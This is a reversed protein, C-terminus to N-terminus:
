KNKKENKPMPEGLVEKLAAWCQTQFNQNTAVIGGYTTLIYELTNLAFDVASWKPTFGDSSMINPDSGAILLLKVM